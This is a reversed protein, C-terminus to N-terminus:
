NVVHNWLHLVPIEREYGLVSLSCADLALHKGTHPDLEAWRAGLVRLVHGHAVVAVRGTEQRLRAAVRDVRIAVQDIKEGGPGGDEWLSWGPREKRIDDTTRGEYSGYDWEVLDDTIELRDDFGLIHATARARLRPSCLVLRPPDVGDLADRLCGALQRGGEDIDLDTTSTHQGSRSWATPAHRIVLVGAPLTGLGM